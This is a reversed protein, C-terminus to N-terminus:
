EVTLEACTPQNCVELTGQLFDQTPRGDFSMIAGGTGVVGVLFRHNLDLVPTGLSLPIQTLKGLGDCTSDSLAFYGEFLQRIVFCQGGVSVASGAVPAQSKVAKFTTLGLSTALDDKFVIVALDNGQYDPSYSPHKRAWLMQTRNLTINTLKGDPKNNLCQAATLVTNKGAVIGTCSGTTGNSYFTKFQVVDTVTPSPLPETVKADNTVPTTCGYVAVALILSHIVNM